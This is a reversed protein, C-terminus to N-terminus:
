LILTSPAKKWDVLAWAYSHLSLLHPIIRGQFQLESIAAVAPTLAKPNQKGSRDPQQVKEAM